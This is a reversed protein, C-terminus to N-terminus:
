EISSTVKKSKKHKINNQIKLNFKINDKGSVNWHYDWLSEAVRFGYATFKKCAVVM